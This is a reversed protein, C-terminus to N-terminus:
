FLLRLLYVSLAAMLASGPITLVASPRLTADRDLGIAVAAAGLAAVADAIALSRRFIKDRHLVDPSWAVKDSVGLASSEVGRDVARRRLLPAGVGVPAAPVAPDDLASM